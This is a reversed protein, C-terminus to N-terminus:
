EFCDIILREHNYNMYQKFFPEFINFDHTHRLNDKMRVNMAEHYPLTWEYPSFTFYIQPSGRQRVLDILALHAKRWYLPSFSNGKMKVKLPVNEGEKVNRKAGISTWLNLDWAFQLLDNAAGYDYIACMALAQYWRKTSTMSDEYEEERAAQADVDGELVDEWTEKHRKEIRNPHMERVYTLCMSEKWFLHPWIACEVGVQEIMRLWRRRQRDDADPHKDLFKLHDAYYDAYDSEDNQRLWRLAKRGANREELTPLEEIRYDVTKAHWSFRIMGTHQRYGAIRGAKDKAFVAPGLYVQLLALAKRTAVTLNKLEVPCSNVSQSSLTPIQEFSQKAKCFSCQSAPILPHVPRDFTAPVMARPQLIGCYPCLGWSAYRIWHELDASVRTQHAPEMYTGSDNEVEAGREVRETSGGIKYLTRGRDDLLSKRYNGKEMPTHQVTIGAGPEMTTRWLDASSRWRDMIEKSSYPTESLFRRPVRKTSPVSGYAELDSRQLTEAFELNVERIYSDIVLDATPPSMKKLANVVKIRGPGSRCCERLQSISCIFCKRKTGHTQAAEDKTSLAFICGQDRRGECRKQLANFYKKVDDPLRLLVINQQETNLQRFKKMVGPRKKANILAIEM